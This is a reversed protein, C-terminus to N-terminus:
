RFSSSALRPGSVLNQRLHLRYQGGLHAYAICASDHRGGGEREDEIISTNIGSWAEREIMNGEREPDTEGTQVYQM